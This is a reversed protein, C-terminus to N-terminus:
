ENVTIKYINIKLSSAEKEGFDKLAFKIEYKGAEMAKFTYTSQGGSGCVDPDDNSLIFEEKEYVIASNTNIEYSWRCPTTYNAKLAIDFSEGKKVERTYYYVNEEVNDDGCAALSFVMLLSVALICLLKRLRM